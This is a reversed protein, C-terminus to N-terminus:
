PTFGVLWDGEQGTLGVGSGGQATLGSLKLFSPAPQVNTGQAVLNATVPSWRPPGEASRCGFLFQM